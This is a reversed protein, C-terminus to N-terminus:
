PLGNKDRKLFTNAVRLCREIYESQSMDRKAINCPACCAIINGDLYGIANDVRDLGVTKISDGCYSCPKQWFTLFM